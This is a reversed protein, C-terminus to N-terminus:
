CGPMQRTWSSRRLPPFSKGSKMRLMEIPVRAGGSAMWLFPSSSCSRGALTMGRRPDPPGGQQHLQLDSGQGHGQLLGEAGQRQLAAAAVGSVVGKGQQQAHLGAYRAHRPQLPCVGGLGTLHADPALCVGFRPPLGGIPPISVKFETPTLINGHRTYIETSEGSSVMVTPDNWYELIVFYVLFIMLMLQWLKIGM